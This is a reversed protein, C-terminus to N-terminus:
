ATMEFLIFDCFMIEAADVDEYNSLQLFVVLKRVFVCWQYSFLLDDISPPAKCFPTQAIIFGPSLM